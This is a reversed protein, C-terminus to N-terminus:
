LIGARSSLFHSCYGVFLQPVQNGTEGDPVGLDSLELLERGFVGDPYVEVTREKRSRV